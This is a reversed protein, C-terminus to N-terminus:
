VELMIIYLIQVNLIIKLDQMIYHKCSFERAEDEVLLRESM